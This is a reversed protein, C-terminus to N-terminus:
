SGHAVIPPHRIGHHLSRHGMTERFTCPQIPRPKGSAALETARDLVQDINADLADAEPRFEEGGLTTRRHTQITSTYAGSGDIDWIKIPM